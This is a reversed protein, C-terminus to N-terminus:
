SRKANRRFRRFALGGLTLGVLAISTPEPVAILNGRIEGGPNATTHVNLYYRGALLDSVVVNAGSISVTGRFGGNTASNNFFPTLGDLGILVGSNTTFSGTPSGHIHMATANGTLNTFGNGSGWGVNILMTNAVNDFVIGGATIGGSGPVGNVIGTENGSRLGAGAQGQLFFEILAANASAGFFLFGLVASLSFLRINGFLNTCNM